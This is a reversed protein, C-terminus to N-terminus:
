KSAPQHISPLAAAGHLDGVLLECLLEPVRQRMVHRLDSPALQKRVFELGRVHRDREQESVSMKKPLLQALLPPLSEELLGAAGSSYNLRDAVARLVASESAMAAAITLPMRLECLLQTLEDGAAPRSSLFLSAPLQPLPLLLQLWQTLLQQARSRLLEATSLGTSHAVRAVVAAVPVRFSADVENDDGDADEVRRAGSDGSPPDPGHAALLLLMASDGCVPSSAAIRALALVASLRLEFTPSCVPQLAGSERLQQAAATAQQLKTIAFLPIETPEDSQSPEDNCLHGLM